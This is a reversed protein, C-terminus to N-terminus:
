KWHRRPGLPGRQSDSPISLASRGHLHYRSSALGAVILYEAPALGPIRYIGRDDTEGFAVEGVTIRKTPSSRRFARVHVGVVPEGMEDVVAGTIAAHKWVRITIDTRSGESELRVRQGYGEPRRQDFTAPLYGAKIAALGYEGARLGRFVFRSDSATLVSQTSDRKAVATSLTVFVAGVPKGTAADVVQGAITGDARPSTEPAQQVALAAMFLFATQLRASM